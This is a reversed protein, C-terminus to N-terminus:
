MDFRLPLKFQMAVPMGFIVAPAWFASSKKVVGMAAEELGFGIKRSLMKIDTIEGTPAVIFEVVVKGEVGEDIAVQPYILNNVIFYNLLVYFKGKVAIPYPYYTGYLPTYTVSASDEGKLIGASYTYSTDNKLDQYEGHYLGNVIPVRARIEEKSFTTKNNELTIVYLHITGMGDKLEELLNMEEDYVTRSLIRGEDYVAETFLNGNSHWIRNLGHYLGNKYRCHIFTDGNELFSLHDGEFKGSDNTHFVRQIQGNGYYSTQQGTQRGDVFNLTATSGHLKYHWTGVPVDGILQGRIQVNGDKSRKYLRITDQHYIETKTLSDNSYVVSDLNNDGDYHSTMYDAETWAKTWILEGNNYYELTKIQGKITSFPKKYNWYGVKKNHEYDGSVYVSKGKKGTITYTGHKINRDSDLVTYREVYDEDLTQKVKKLKQADATSILFLLLGALLLRYNMWRFYENEANSTNYM